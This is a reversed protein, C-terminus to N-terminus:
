PTETGKDPEYTDNAPGFTEALAQGRHNTETGKDPEYTDNAFLKAADPWERIIQKLARIPSM